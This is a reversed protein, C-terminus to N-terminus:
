YHNIKSFGDCLSAENLKYNRHVLFPDVRPGTLQILLDNRGSRMSSTFNTELSAEKDLCDKGYHNGKCVEDPLWVGLFPRFSWRNFHKHLLGNKYERKLISQYDRPVLAIAGEFSTISLPFIEDLHHLHMGKCHVINKEAIVTEIQQELSEYFSAKSVLDHTASNLEASYDTCVMPFMKSCIESKHKGLQEMSISTLSTIDVYMGTAIDIFRADIVNTSTEFGSSQFHPNVDLFYLRGTAEPHGDEYDIVISQNFENALRLLSKATIQVDIDQDWPLSIGNWYWGLLSGHALWSTINYSTCFRLWARTLRHLILRHEYPSFETKKFFRWDFHSGKHTNLLKVEHFYTYENNTGTGNELVVNDDNEPGIKDENKIEIVEDTTKLSGVNGSPFSFDEEPSVIINKENFKSDSGLINNKQMLSQINHVEQKLSILQVGPNLDLYQSILDLLVIKRRNNLDNLSNAEDLFDVEVLCNGQIGLLIARKPQFDKAHVLYSIGLFAKEEENSAINISDYADWRSNLSLSLLQNHTDRTDLTHYYSSLDVFSSWQFSLPPNQHNNKEIQSRIVSLWLAPVLRPDFNTTLSKRYLGLRQIADEPWFPWPIDSYELCPHKTLLYDHVSANSVADKPIETRQSLFLSLAGVLAVFLWSRFSFFISYLVM